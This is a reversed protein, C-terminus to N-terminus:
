QNLQTQFKTRVPPANELTFLCAARSGPAGLAQAAFALLLLLPMVCAPLVWVNLLLALLACLM